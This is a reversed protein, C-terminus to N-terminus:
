RVALAALSGKGAPAQNEATVLFVRAADIEGQSLIGDRVRRAREQALLNLDGPSVEIGALLKEEM